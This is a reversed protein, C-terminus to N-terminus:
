FLKIELFLDIIGKNIELYFWESFQCDENNLDITIQNNVNIKEM